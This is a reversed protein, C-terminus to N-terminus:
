RVGFNLLLVARGPVEVTGGPGRLSEAPRTVVQLPRTDVTNHDDLSVSTLLSGFRLTYKVSIGSDLSFAKGRNVIVLTLQKEDRVAFVTHLAREIETTESPTKPVVIESRVVSKGEISGLMRFLEAMGTSSLKGTSVDRYFLGWPGSSFCHYTAMEVEPRNMWRGLFDATSLCGELSHTQYWSKQWSEDRVKPTVPWRAHESIFLKLLREPVLRACEDRAQDIWREVLEVTHGQFGGEGQLGQTSGFAVGQYYFHLSFYDVQAGLARLVAQNWGPDYSSSGHLAIKAKPDATRIATIAARSVDIYREATWVYSKEPIKLEMENGLEWVAVPVPEPLGLQVRRKAWAAEEPRPSNVRGTLFYVLDAIDQPTDKLLNVVFVFQAKPDEQRVWRVWEVPGLRVPREPFFKYLQQPLRDAMPGIAWKWRFEQSDTGAMRNLPLPFGKCLESIDERYEGADNLVVRQTVTWDFNLGFM